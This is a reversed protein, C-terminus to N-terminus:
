LNLIFPSCCKSIDFFFKRCAGQSYTNSFLHDSTKRINSQVNIGGGRSGILHDPMRQSGQMLVYTVDLDDILWIHPFHCKAM